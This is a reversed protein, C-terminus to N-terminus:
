QSQPLLASLFEHAARGPPRRTPWVAVIKRKPVPETLSRYIPQHEGPLTRAAMAPILSIGLGAAVLARVTELQASRFCTQAPLLHPECVRVMQDELGHADSLLIWREGALDGPTLRRHTALPHSPPVAVLLEEEFLEHIAVRAENFPPTTVALDMEGSYLLENLRSAAEEVVRVEVGPHRERYRGLARPLLYPAITPLVGVVLNGRLLDGSERAERKAAEVEELVRLARHLFIEGASTLKSRRGMRHFLREGIEVELKQIQQSLSPQAVRCQEAARSFNGTRAVSVFYRLQHFEM